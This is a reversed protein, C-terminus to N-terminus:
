TNLESQALNNFMTLTANGTVTMRIRQAKSAPVVCDYSKGDSDENENCYKNKNTHEAGATWPVIIKLFSGNIRGTLICVV